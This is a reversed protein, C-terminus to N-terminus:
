SARVRLGKAAAPTALISTSRPGIKGLLLLFPRAISAWTLSRSKEGSLYPSLNFGLHLGLMSVLRTLPYLFLRTSLTQNLTKGSAFLLPQGGCM